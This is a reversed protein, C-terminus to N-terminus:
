NGAFHCGWVTSSCGDYLNCHAGVGVPSLEYRNGVGRQRLDVTTPPSKVTFEVSSLPETEDLSIVAVTRCSQRNFPGISGALEGSSRRNSRAAEAIFFSLIRPLWRLKM